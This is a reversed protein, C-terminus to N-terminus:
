KSTEKKYYKNYIVIMKYNEDTYYKDYEGNYYSVRCLEEKCAEGFFEITTIEYTLNYKDCIKIIRNFEDQTYYNVDTWFRLENHWAGNNCTIYPENNRVAFVFKSFIEKKTERTKYWESCEIKDLLRGIWKLNIHSFIFNSLKYKLLELQISM